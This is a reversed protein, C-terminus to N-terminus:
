ELRDRAAVHPDLRVPVVETEDHLYQIIREAAGYGEAMRRNIAERAEATQVPTAHYRVTEGARVVEVDPRERLELLWRSAPQGARLWVSGDHEVIWLRTEHVAGSEDTTRLTVVEGGLESILLIGGGVLLVLALLVGGLKALTKM